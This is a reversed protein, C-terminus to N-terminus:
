SQRFSNKLARRLYCNGVKSCSTCTVVKSYSFFDFTSVPYVGLREIIYNIFMYEDDADLCEFNNNLVVEKKKFDIYLRDVDDINKNAVANSYSKTAKQAEDFTKSFDDRTNYNIHCVVFKYGDKLLMHFLAMSDPGFSCALIYTKDKDYNFSM